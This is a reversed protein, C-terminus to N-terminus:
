ERAGVPHVTFSGPTAGSRINALAHARADPDDAPLFLAKDVDSQSVEGDTYLLHALGTISGWCNAVLRPVAGSHDGSERMARADFTHRDLQLRLGRSTPPGGHRAFAEAYPGAFCIDARRQDTFTTKYTVRGGSDPDDATLVASSITGGYITAIVAHAAEHIATAFRDLQEKSAKM